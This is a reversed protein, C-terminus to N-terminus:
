EFFMDLEEQKEVFGWGETIKNDSSMRFIHAGESDISRGKRKGTFHIVAVVMNQNEMIHNVKFKWEDLPAMRQPMLNFYEETHYDGSVPNHGPVHWIFTDAFCDREQEMGGRTFSEYVARVTDINNM